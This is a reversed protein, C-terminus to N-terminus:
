CTSSLVQELDTPGLLHASPPATAGRKRGRSKSVSDGVATQASRVFGAPHLRHHGRGDGQVPSQPAVARHLSSLPSALPYPGQSYVTLVKRVPYRSEFRQRWQRHRLHLHPYLPSSVLLPRMRVHDWYLFPRSVDSGCHSALYYTMEVEVTLHGHRGNHLEEESHQEATKPMQVHLVGSATPTDFHLQSDDNL